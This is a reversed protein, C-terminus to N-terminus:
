TYNVKMDYIEGTRQLLQILDAGGNSLNSVNMMAILPVIVIYTNRIMIEDKYIVGYIAIARAALVFYALLTTILTAQRTSCFILSM